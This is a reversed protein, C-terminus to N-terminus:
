FRNSIGKARAMFRSLAYKSVDIPPRSPLFPLAGRCLLVHFRYREGLLNLQRLRRRIRLEYPAVKVPRAIVSADLPNVVEICAPVKKRHRDQPVKSPTKWLVDTGCQAKEDEAVVRGM